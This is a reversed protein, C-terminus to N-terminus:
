GRVLYNLVIEINCKIHAYSLKLLFFGSFPAQEVQIWLTVPVVWNGTFWGAMVAQLEVVLGM